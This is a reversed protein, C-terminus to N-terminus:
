IQQNAHKLSERTKRIEQYKNKMADVKRDLSESSRSSKAAFNSFSQRQSQEKNIMEVERKMNICKEKVAKVNACVVRLLDSPNQDPLQMVQTRLHQKKDNEELRQTIKARTRQVKEFSSTDCMMKTAEKTVQFIKLLMLLISTIAGHSFYIGHCRELLEM